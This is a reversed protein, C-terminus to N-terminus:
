REYRSLEQFSVNWRQEFLVGARRIEAEDYRLREYEPERCADHFHNSRPPDCYLSFMGKEWFQMALDVDTGGMHYGHWPLCGRDRWTSGPVITCGQGVVDCVEYHVEPEDVSEHTGPVTHLDKDRRMFARAQTNQVASFACAVDWGTSDAHEIADILQDWTGPAVEIDDDVRAYWRADTKLFYEVTRLHGPGIGERKDCPVVVIEQPRETAYMLAAVTRDLCVQPRLPHHQIYTIIRDDVGTCRV